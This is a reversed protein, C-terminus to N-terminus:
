QQSTPFEVIGGSTDEIAARCATRFAEDQPHDLLHLSIKYLDTTRILASGLRSANTLSKRTFQEARDEPPSLRFGNGFLLGKAPEEVDEREFDEGINSELQRFKTIDIASTDKGESEGIMRRGSPGVVVHDIELDGVRLTEVSYGLLRLAKEIAKELTKGTEFLLHSYQTLDNLRLAEESRQRGLKEIQADIEAIARHVDAVASPKACKSLWDPPPTSSSTGRLLQDVAILQGVFAHSTQLAKASWVDGDDDEDQSPETFGAAAFNFYPVLVLSGPWLDFQVVGGVAAGDKAVFVTKMRSTDEFVVKYETIDKVIQYLNKFSPDKVQISRGVSNRVKLTGPIFSYNDITATQYTRASRAGTTYGTATADEKHSALVIFVTKGAKLASQIEHSWHARAKILEAGGEISICSGGGTFDIRDQWPLTPDFVVIDYDRLSGNSIYDLENAVTPIEVNVCVISKM